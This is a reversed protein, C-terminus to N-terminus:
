EILDAGDWEGVEGLGDHDGQSMTRVQFDPPQGDGFDFSPRPTSRAFVGGNNHRRARGRRQRPKALALKSALKLGPPRVERLRLAPLRAAVCELSACGPARVRRYVVALRGSLLDATRKWTAGLTWSHASM